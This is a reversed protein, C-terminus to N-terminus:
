RKVRDVRRGHQDFLHIRSVDVGLRVPDGARLEGANDIEFVLDSRRHTPSSLQEPPAPTPRGILSRTRVALASLHGATRHVRSGASHSTPRAATNARTRRHRPLGVLDPNLLEIGADVFAVWQHGHFELARMRGTLQNGAGTDAALAFADSRAGVVVQEGDHDSLIMSRRDTAPLAIAQMGFDLTVRHRATVRVTAAMLNIRPTGLFGATFATAPDDYVQAPTGVDEIRGDRMIAIRDALTLAEVQDHTVYVTTVNMDRTMSGIEQRLETRMTADLNSLPEDMLFVRPQRIIARGIAVRQRQGGSLTWPLRDLAADIGLIQALGAAKAGAEVPDEGAMRLPFIINERATRNPYLAGNQFVMAVCRDKPTLGTGKTRGFWVDGTTVEELGAIMRLVTTKGCGSPGLLVMFEGDAVELSLQDVALYGGNYVKSVSDLRIGTM